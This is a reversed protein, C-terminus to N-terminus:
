SHLLERAIATHGAAVATRTWPTRRTQLLQRQSLSLSSEGQNAAILTNIFWELIISQQELSGGIARWADSNMVKEALLVAEKAKGTQSAIIARALVVGVSSAGSKEEMSKTQHEADSVRGSISLAKVLALDFLIDWHASPIRIYGLVHAWHEKGPVDCASSSASSSSSSSCAPSSSTSASASVTAGASLHVSQKTRAREDWFWLGLLASLQDQHCLPDRRPSRFGPDTDNVETPQPTQPHPWLEESWVSSAKAFDLGELAFLLVHFWTHTQLFSM